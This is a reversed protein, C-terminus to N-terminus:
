LDVTAYNVQLFSQFILHSLFDSGQFNKFYVINVKFVTEIAKQTM